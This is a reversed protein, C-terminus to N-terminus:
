AAPQKSEASETNRAKGINFAIFNVVAHFARYASSTEATPHPLVTALAACIAIAATIYPLVPAANPIAALITVIDM